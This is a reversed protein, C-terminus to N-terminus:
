LDLPKEMIGSMDGQYLWAQRMSYVGQRDLFEETEITPNM